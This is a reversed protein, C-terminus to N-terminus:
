EDCDRETGTKVSCGESAMHGDLYNDLGHVGGFQKDRRCCWPCRRKPAVLAAGFCVAPLGCYDCRPYVTDDSSM